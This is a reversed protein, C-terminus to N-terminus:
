SFMNNEKSNRALGELSEDLCKPSEVLNVLESLQAIADLVSQPAATLQEAAQNHGRAESAM